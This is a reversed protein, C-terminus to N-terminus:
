GITIISIPTVESRTGATTPILLLPLRPKQANNIGYLDQLSQTQKPDALIAIVKAVDMSSGGGFGLIADVQESKTFQVADLIIHEAPDAQVESYIVYALKIAELIELIPVHLQRQIMGPDTVILVKQYNQNSLLTKLEQISGLGSIINGVTQFQFHSM